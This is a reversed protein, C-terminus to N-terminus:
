LAEVIMSDATEARAELQRACEMCWAQVDQLDREASTDLLNLGAHTVQHWAKQNISRFQRAAPTRDHGRDVFEALIRGAFLAQESAPALRGAQRDALAQECAQAAKRYLMAGLLDPDNTTIQAQQYAKTPDMRWGAGRGGAQAAPPLRRAERRM